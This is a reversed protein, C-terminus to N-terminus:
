EAVENLEAGDFFRDITSKRWLTCKESVRRGSPFTGKKVWNRVTQTTVNALKAVESIPIYRETETTM